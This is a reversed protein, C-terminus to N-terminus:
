DDADGITSTRTKSRNMKLTSVLVFSGYGAITGMSDFLLDMLDFVREPVLFQHAEDLLGFSFCIATTWFFLGRSTLPYRYHLARALLFSLLGFETFHVINNLFEPHKPYYTGPTSSLLFILAALSCPPIWPKIPSSRTDSGSAGTQDGEMFQSRISDRGMFAAACLASHQTYLASDTVGSAAYPKYSASHRFKMQIYKGRCAASGTRWPECLSPPHM